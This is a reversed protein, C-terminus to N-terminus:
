AYMDADGNGNIDYNAGEFEQEPPIIWKNDSTNGIGTGTSNYTMGIGVGGETDIDIAIVDDDPKWTETNGDWLTIDVVVNSSNILAYTKAM